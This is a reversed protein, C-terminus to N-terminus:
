LQIFREVALTHVTAGGIQTEVMPLGGAESPMRVQAPVYQTRPACCARVIELLEPMRRRELGLLLCVMPERLMGGASDIITFSFRAQRLRRMLADSQLGSATLIVLRDIPPSANM